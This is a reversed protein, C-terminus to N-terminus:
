RRDGTKGEVPPTLPPNDGTEQRRDGTKGEVPPTLPPNDGIEERIILLQEVPCSILPYNVSVTARHKGASQKWGNSM